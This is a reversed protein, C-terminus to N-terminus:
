ASGPQWCCRSWRSPKGACLWATLAVCVARYRGATIGATGDSGSDSGSGSGSGSGSNSCCTSHNYAAADAEMADAVPPLACLLLADAIAALSDGGAAMLSRLPAYAPRDMIAGAVGSLCLAALRRDTDALAPGGCILLLAPPNGFIDLVCASCSCPHGWARCQPRQERMKAVVGDV